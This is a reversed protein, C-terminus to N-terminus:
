PRPLVVDTAQRIADAAFGRRALYAYLRRRADWFADADDDPAAPRGNKRLWARAATAALAPESVADDGEFLEATAAGATEAPVGRARLEQVLRMRGRPRHRVRDRLFTAAFAADDVLGKDALDAAIEAVVDEPFEKRLLRRRLEAETRARYSLLNFAAERAKWLLDKREVAALTAEDVEEGVRLGAAFAVEVAVGCRFEGDVFLNLREAHHQQPELATIRM